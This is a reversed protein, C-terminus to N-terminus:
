VLCSQRNSWRHTPCQHPSPRRIAPRKRGFCVSCGTRRRGEERGNSNGQVYLLNPARDRFRRTHALPRHDPGRNHRRRFLRAWFRRFSQRLAASLNDFPLVAISFKKSSAPALNEISAPLVNPKNVHMWTVGGGAGVILAAVIAAPVWRSRLTPRPKPADVVKGAYAPDILVKYANVPKEINKVTQPDLNAFGADINKEVQDFVRGSICIGGPEALSELRAAVNVGNGYIEDGDIILDGLNIGIRFQLKRDDSLDGNRKAMERQAAIAGKLAAIASAFEALVADGATHVIRGGHDKITAKLADFHSRFLRHAGEEDAGVLRSYGAVDAYLIAALKREM